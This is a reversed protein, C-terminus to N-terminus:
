ASAAPPKAVLDLLAAFLLGVMSVGGPILSIGMGLRVTLALRMCTGGLMRRTIYIIRRVSMKHAARQLQLQDVEVASARAGKALRVINPRRDVTGTNAAVYGEGAYPEAEKGEASSPTPM